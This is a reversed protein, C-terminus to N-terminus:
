INENSSEGECEVVILSCIERERAEARIAKGANYLTVAVWLIFLLVIGILVKTSTSM